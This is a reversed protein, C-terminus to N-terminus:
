RGERVRSPRYYRIIMTDTLQVAGLKDGTLQQERTDAWSFLGRNFKGPVILSQLESLTGTHSEALESESMRRISPPVSVGALDAAPRFVFVHILGAAADGGLDAFRNSSEQESLARISKFTQNGPQYYGQIVYEGRPALVWKKLTNPQGKQEYLTSLGNVTVVAGIKEETLNKVGITLREGQRPTRVAFNAGSTIEQDPDLVVEADDYYVTVQVPLAAPSFPASLSVPQLKPSKGPAPPTGSTSNEAVTNEAVTKPKPRDDPPTVKDATENAEEKSAAEEPTKENSAKETSAKETSTTADGDPKDVSPRDASGRDANPSVPEVVSQQLAEIIDDETVARLFKGKHVASLSYGYGVEALTHRDLRTELRIVDTVIEPQRRDFVEIEVTVKSLDAAVIVKGTLFADVDIMPAPNGWAQRYKVGFLRAREEQTRYNAGGLRATATASAGRVIKLPHKGEELSVVLAAEVREPLSNIILGGQFTPPSNGRQLRFALVGVANFRRQLLYDRLEGSRKMLEVDIGDARAAPASAFTGCAVVGLLLMRRLMTSRIFAFM